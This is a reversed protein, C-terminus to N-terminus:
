RMTINKSTNSCYNIATNRVHDQYGPCNRFVEPRPDDLKCYRTVTKMNDAKIPPGTHQKKPKHFTQLVELCSSEVELDSESIFNSLMQLVAAIHKCTGHPGKGGPCESYRNLVERTSKHLKLKFWYTVAGKYM